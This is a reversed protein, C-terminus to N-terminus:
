ISVWWSFMEHLHKLCDHLFCLNKHTSRKELNQLKKSLVSTHDFVIDEEHTGYFEYSIERTRIFPAKIFEDSDTDSQYRCSKQVQSLCEIKFTFAPWIYLVHQYHSFCYSGSFSILLLSTAACVWKNMECAYCTVWKNVSFM